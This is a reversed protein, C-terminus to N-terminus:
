EGEGFREHYRRELEAWVGDSGERLLINWLDYAQLCSGDSYCKGGNMYGCTEVPDQGDFVPTSSHYGVDAPLPGFTPNPVPCQNDSRMDLYWSTYLTFQYAGKSGVVAFILDVCHQGGNTRDNRYDWAPTAKFRRELAM